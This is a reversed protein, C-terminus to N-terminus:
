DNPLGYKEMLMQELSKFKVYIEKNESPRILVQSLQNTLDDM